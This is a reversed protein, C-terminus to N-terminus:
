EGSPWRIAKEDPRLPPTALTHTQSLSPALGTWNVRKSLPPPVARQDGSPRLITKSLSWAPSM